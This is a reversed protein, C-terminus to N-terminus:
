EVKIKDLLDDVKVSESADTLKSFLAASDDLWNIRSYNVSASYRCICLRNIGSYM